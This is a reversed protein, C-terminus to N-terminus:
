IPLDDESFPCHSGTRLIQTITFGGPFECAKILIDVLVAEVAQFNWNYTSVYVYIYICM